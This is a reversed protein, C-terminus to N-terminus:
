HCGKQQCKYYATPDTPDWTHNSAIKLGTPKKLPGSTENPSIYVQTGLACNDYIWKADECNLRICGLSRTEGLHNYEEVELDMNTLTWYPVSHFLYNGQIQTCWQAWTNGVMELWRFRQPTYYTGTPTGVGCSVLMSRVPITYRGNTDKAFIILYNANKYVKIYYPGSVVGLGTLDEQLLGNLYYRTWSGRVYFGTCAAGTTKDLMYEKGGITQVGRLFKRTVPDVYYRNSGDTIWRANEPATDKVYDAWVEGTESIQPTHDTSAEAIEGYAWFEPYVDYFNTVQYSKVQPDPSRGLVRNLIKIAEARTIKGNPQFTGDGYGDVWGKAVATYIYDKAWHTDSVDTFGPDGQLLTDCAVAMKVFEARTIARNPLFHGDGYGGIVGLGAMVQVPQAYWQGEPVDLFSSGEWEQSRLLNYFLQAAESRTITSQPKLTGNPYGNAYAKHEDTNLLEQANRAWRATYTLDKTVPEEQPDAEQGQENFWGLFEAVPLETDQPLDEQSLKEGDEVQVEVTKGGALQFTVTHVPVPTPTPEPTATPEPSPSPDPSGTPQPSVSPSPNDSPSPDQSPTPEASPAPDEEEEAPDKEDPTEEPADEDLVAPEEATEKAPSNETDQASAPWAWCSAAVLCCLLLAQARRFMPPHPSTKM